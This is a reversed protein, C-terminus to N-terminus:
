KGPILRSAVKDGPKPPFKSKKELKAIAKTPLVQLVKIKGLYRPSAGLRFMELMHGKSLGDDQGLSIELLGNKDVKLVKGRLDDAPRNVKEGDIQAKKFEKTLKRLKEELNWRQTGLIKSEIQAQVLKLRLDKIIQELHEQDRKPEKKLKKSLDANEKQAKDLKTILLQIQYRADKLASRLSQIEKDRENEDARAPSMLFAVYLVFSLSLYRSM